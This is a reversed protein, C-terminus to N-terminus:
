LGVGYVHSISEGNLIREIREAALNATAQRKEQLRKAKAGRACEAGTTAWEAAERLQRLRAARYAPTHEKEARIIQDAQVEDMAVWDVVLGARELNALHKQVTRKSLNGMRCVEEVSRAGRRVWYLVWRADYLPTANEPNYVRKKKPSMLVKKDKETLYSPLPTTTNAELWARAAGLAALNEAWKANDVPYALSFFSELQLPFSSM